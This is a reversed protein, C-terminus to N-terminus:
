RGKSSRAASLHSRLRIKFGSLSVQKMFIFMDSISRSRKEYDSVKDELEKRFQKFEIIGNRREMEIMEM